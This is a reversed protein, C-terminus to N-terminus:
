HKPVSPMAMLAKETKEGNDKLWTSMAEGVDSGYIRYSYVMSAGVGKDILFRAFVAEMFESRPFVVAIFHEAPKTETRPVSATRIVIAKNAQYTDLVSNAARALAVGDKVNPYDNITFMNTWKKLDTQGKPTFEHLNDKTFRHFYEVKDFTFAPKEDGSQPLPGALAFLPLIALCHLSTVM